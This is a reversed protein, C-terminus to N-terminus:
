TYHDLFIHLPLTRSMPTVSLYMGVNERLLRLVREEVRLQFSHALLIVKNRENM